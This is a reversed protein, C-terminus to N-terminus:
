GKVDCYTCSENCSMAHCPMAHCILTVPNIHLTTRCRTVREAYCLPLLTCVPFQHYELQPNGRARMRKIAGHYLWTFPVNTVGYHNSSTSMPLDVTSCVHGQKSWAQRGGDVKIDIDPERVPRHIDRFSILSRMVLIHKPCKPLRQCQEPKYRM